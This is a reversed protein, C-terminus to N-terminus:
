NISKRLENIVVEILENLENILKSSEENKTNSSFYDMCKSVINDLEKIQLTALTSKTKHVAIKALNLDNTEVAISMKDKLENINDIYLLTLEDIFDQDGGSLDSLLKKFNGMTFDATKNNSSTLITERKIYKVIKQHLENPSIPKTVFDDMGFSLAKGRIDLMASATLALIPVNKFYQGGLNRINKTADYGNMVPMQLDM